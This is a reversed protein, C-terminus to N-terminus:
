SFISKTDMVFASDINTVVGNQENVNNVATIITRSDIDVVYATGDMMVLSEKGGKEEMKDIANSLRQMGKQDLEIGHMQMLNKAHQSFRVEKQKAVTEQYVEGFTRGDLKKPQMEIRPLQMHAVISNPQLGIPQVEYASM